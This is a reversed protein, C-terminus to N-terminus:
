PKGQVHDDAFRNFRQKTGNGPEFQIRYMDLTDHGTLVNMM